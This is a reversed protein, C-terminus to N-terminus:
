LNPKSVCRMKKFNRQDLSFGDAESKHFRGKMGSLKQSRNINRVGNVPKTKSELSTSKPVWVQKM